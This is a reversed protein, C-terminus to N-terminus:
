GGAERELLIAWWLDRHGVERSSDEVWPAEVKSVM